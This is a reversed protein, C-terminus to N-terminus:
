HALAPPSGFFGVIKFIRGDGDLEGFDVGNMVLKGDAGLMKWTFQFKGHHVAAGSTILIQAGPMNKHFSGIHAILADRGTLDVSPDTYTGQPNWATELMARRANEDQELWAAGYSDIINVTNQTMAMGWERFYIGKRFIPQAPVIAIAALDNVCRAM